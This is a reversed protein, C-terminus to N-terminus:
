NEYNIITRIEVDGEKHDVNAMHKSVETTGETRLIRKGNHLDRYNVRANDRRSRRTKIEEVVTEEEDIRKM